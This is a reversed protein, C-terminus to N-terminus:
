GLPLPCTGARRTAASRPSRSAAIPTSACSSRCSRRRLGARARCLASSARRSRGRGRRQGVRRQRQVPEGGLPRHQARRAHLDGPRAAADLVGTLAGPVLNPRLDPQRCGRTRAHARRVATGDDAIWRFRVLARYSAPVPLGTVRKTFVFGAVNPASREWVGFGAARLPALLARRAAQARPRLPHAHADRAARPCRASSPRSGSSPCRVRACSELTASLPPTRPQPEQAHASSATATLALLVALLLSRGM